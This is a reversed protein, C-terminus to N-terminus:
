RMDVGGDANITQGTIFASEEGAFFAVVAALEEPTGLRGLPIRSSAQALVESVSIGAESARGSVSKRLMDTAHGGPAVCNVRIGYEALELACQQTFGIVAFKTPGYAGQNPLARRGSVSSINVISGGEGLDQMSRSVERTLRFVSNLNIEVSSDWDDDGMDLISKGSPGVAANNVLIDIKDLETIAARVIAESSSRETIDCEIPLARRGLQEIENALSGVGKWAIRKENEPVDISHSKRGTVVVDAGERALRLAIARGLGAHRAAGTILAVKGKLDSM